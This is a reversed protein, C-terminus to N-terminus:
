GRPGRLRQWLAVGALVIALHVTNAVLGVAILSLTNQGAQTGTTMPIIAAVFVLGMVLPLWTGTAARTRITTVVLAIILGLRFPDTVQAMFLDTLSMPFGM